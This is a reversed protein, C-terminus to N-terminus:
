FEFEGQKRGDEPDDSEKFNPNGDEPDDSEKFNPNGDEPDDSEKFNPNLKRSSSSYRLIRRGDEPDDSEKFNPNLKNVAYNTLHIMHKNLNSNKPQVYRESALRVLGKEHLFIRLPDCGSVLVYLRLDFKHGDLLLPKAIYKQAVLANQFFSKEFSNPYERTLFIGRGPPFLSNPSTQLFHTKGGDSEM